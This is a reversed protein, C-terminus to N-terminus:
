STKDHSYQDREKKRSIHGLSDRQSQRLTRREFGETESAYGTMRAATESFRHTGKRNKSITGYGRLSNHTSDNWSRRTSIVYLM